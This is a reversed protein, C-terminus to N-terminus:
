YLCIFFLKFAHGATSKFINLALGGAVVIISINVVIIGIIISRIFNPAKRVNIYIVIAM